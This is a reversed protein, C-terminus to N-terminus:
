DFQCTGDTKKPCPHGDVGDTYCGICINYTHSVCVRFISAFVHDNPNTINNSDPNLYAITDKNLKLKSINELKEKKKM